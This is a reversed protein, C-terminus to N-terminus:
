NAKKRGEEDSNSLKYFARKMQINTV